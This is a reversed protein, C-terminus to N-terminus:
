STLCHYFDSPLSVALEKATIWYAVEKWYWLEDGDWLFFSETGRLKEVTVLAIELNSYQIEGCGKFAILVQEGNEFKPVGINKHWKIQKNM